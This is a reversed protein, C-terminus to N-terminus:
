RRWRDIQPAFHLVLRVAGYGVLWLLLGLAVARVIGTGHQRNDPCHQTGREGFGADLCLGESTETICPQVEYIRLSESREMHAVIAKATGRNVMAQREAELKRWCRDSCYGNVALSVCDACQPEDEARDLWKLFKRWDERTPELM